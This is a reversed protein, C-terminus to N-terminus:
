GTCEAKSRLQDLRRYFNQTPNDILNAFDGLLDCAEENTAIYTVSEALWLTVTERRRDAPWKENFVSFTRVAKRHESKQFQVRGLWFTADNARGHDPNRQLFENLALEAGNLDNQLAKNLAFDIQEDPPADPLVSLSAQQGANGASEADESSPLRAIEDNLQDAGITWNTQNSESAKISSQPIEGAGQNVPGERKTTGDSNQQAVGGVLRELELMRNNLVNVQDVLKNVKDDIDRLDGAGLGEADQLSLRIARLDEELIGRVEKLGEELVIIKDQFIEASSQAMAPSVFINGIALFLLFNKFYSTFRSM